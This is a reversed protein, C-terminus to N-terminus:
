KKETFNSLVLFVLGAMVATGIFAFTINRQRASQIAQETPTWDLEIRLAGLVKQATGHCSACMKENSVPRIVTLVNRSNGDAAGQRAELGIFDRQDSVARELNDSKERLSKVENFRRNIAKKDASRKIVMKHDILEMGLLGRLKSLEDFQRQIVPQDGTMMPYRIATIVTNSFERAKDIQLNFIIRNQYATNMLGSVFFIIGAGLSIFLTISASQQVNLLRAPQGSFPMPQSPQLEEGLGKLITKVGDKVLKEDIM